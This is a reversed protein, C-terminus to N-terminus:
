QDKGVYLHTQETDYTKYNVQVKSLLKQIEVLSMNDTEQVTIIAWVAMFISMAGYGLMLKPFAGASSAFPYATMNAYAAVYSSAKVIGVSISRIETPFLEATLIDLVPVLGIPMCAPPITAIILSIWDFTTEFPSGDVIDKLHYCIGVSIDFLFLKICSIIDFHFISTFNCLSKFFPICVALTMNAFKDLKQPPTWVM